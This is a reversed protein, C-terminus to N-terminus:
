KKDDENKKKGTQAATAVFTRGLGRNGRGFFCLDLLATVIKSIDLLV